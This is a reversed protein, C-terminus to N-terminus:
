GSAVCARAEALAQELPLAQGAAWADTLRPLDLQAHLATLDADILRRDVPELQARLDGLAATAAGYSRAACLLQWSREFVADMSRHRDPLDRRATRLLGPSHQLERLLEAPPLLHTWAAALEIALPMGEVLECIRAIAALDGASPACESRVRLATQLYLQVADSREFAGADPLALGGVEFLVEGILNLRERSTVLLKVGPAAALVSLALAAGALLHEMNDLILLARQKRLYNILQTTADAQDDFTFDLARAIATVLLEPEAVPALPVFWVGHAFGQAQRAVELALRTKGIGGPGILTILRCDPRALLVVLEAVERTRGVLGTMATPLNAGPRQAVPEQAATLAPATRPLSRAFSTFGPQQDAPVGFCVALLAAIQRSPRREGTELKEVLSVSCNLRRALEERSLDLARRHQKLWAGFRVDSDM